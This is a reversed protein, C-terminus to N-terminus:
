HMEHRLNFSASMYAKYSKKVNMLSIGPVTSFEILNNASSVLSYRATVDASSSRLVDVSQVCARLFPHQFEVWILALDHSYSLSM